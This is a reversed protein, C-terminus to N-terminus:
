LFGMRLFQLQLVSQCSPFSGAEWEWLGPGSRCSHGHPGPEAMPERECAWVPPVELFRGCTVLTSQVWGPRFGTRM